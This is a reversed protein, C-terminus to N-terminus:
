LGISFLIRVATNRGRANANIISPIPNDKVIFSKLFIIIKGLATKKPNSFWIINKGSM